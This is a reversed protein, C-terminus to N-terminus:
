NRSASSCSRVPRRWREAREAATAAAAVPLLLDDGLVDDVDRKDIAEVAAVVVVVVAVVVAVGAVGGDTRRATVPAIVEGDGGILLLLLEVAEFGDMVREVLPGRVAALTALPREGSTAWRAAGAGGGPAIRADGAGLTPELLTDDDGGEGKGASACRAAEVLSKPTGARPLLTADTPESGGSAV